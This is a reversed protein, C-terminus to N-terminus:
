NGVRRKRFALEKNALEEAKKKLKEKHAKIRVMSARKAKAAHKKKEEFAAHLEEQRKELALQPAVCLCTLPPCLPVVRAHTLTVPM